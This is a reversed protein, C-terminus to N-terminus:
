LLTSLSTTCIQKWFVVSFFDLNHEQKKVLKFYVPTYLTKFNWALTIPNPFANIPINRLDITDMEGSLIGLFIILFSSVFGSPFFGKNIVNLACGHTLSLCALQRVSKTYWKPLTRLVVGASSRLSSVSLNVSFYLWLAPICLTLASFALWTWGM